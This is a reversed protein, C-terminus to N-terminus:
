GGGLAARVRANVAAMDVRGAAKAKVAAMVKGMDKVSTAGTEAMASAILADLQADSLRAPLYRELIEIEAMEKARLDDRGGTEYQQASERGQKIMKELVAVTGADDLEARSDIERQKVGALAMRLVGLRLKEGARLAAQSDQQLKEKLSM